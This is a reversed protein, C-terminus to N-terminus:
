QILLSRVHAKDSIESLLKFKFLTKVWDVSEEKAPFEDLLSENFFLLQWFTENAEKIQIEDVAREELAIIHLRDLWVKQVVQDVEYVFHAVIKGEELALCIKERPQQCVFQQLRQHLM